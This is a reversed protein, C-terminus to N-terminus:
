SSHTVALSKGSLRAVLRNLVLLYTKECHLKPEQIWDRLYTIELQADPDDVKLQSIFRCVSAVFFFFLPMSTEALSQIKEPGAWDLTM